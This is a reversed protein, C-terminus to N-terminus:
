QMSNDVIGLVQCLRALNQRSIAVNKACFHCRHPLLNANSFTSCLTAWFYLLTGVFKEPPTQPPLRGMRAALFAQVEIKARTRYFCYDKRHAYDRKARRLTGYNKARRLGRVFACTPLAM